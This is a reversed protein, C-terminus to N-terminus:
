TKVASVAASHILVRNVYIQICVRPGAASQFVLWSRTGLARVTWFSVLRPIYSSKYRNSVIKNLLAMKPSPQGSIEYGHTRHLPLSLGQVASQQGCLQSAVSLLISVSWRIKRTLDQTEQGPRAGKANRRQLPDRCGGRAVSLAQAPCAHGSWQLGSASTPIRPPPDCFTRPQCRNWPRSENKSLVVCAHLVLQSQPCRLKAPSHRLQGTIDWRLDMRVLRHPIRLTPLSALLGIPIKDLAQLGNLLELNFSCQTKAHLRIRRGVHWRSM